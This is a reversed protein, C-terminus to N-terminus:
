RSGRSTHMAWRLELIERALAQEQEFRDPMWGRLSGDPEIPVRAASANGDDDRSVWHLGVQEPDLEGRLVARQVARLLYVSHTELVVMGRSSARRFVEFLALQLQPHLHAEPEEIALLTPGGEQGLWEACILPALLSRLGEGALHLPMREVGPARLEFRPRGEADAGIELGAGLSPQDRLWQSVPNLLETAPKNRLLEPLDTGDPRCVRCRRMNERHRPTARGAVLWQAQRIPGIAEEIRDLIAKPREAIDGSPILSAFDLRGEWDQGLQTGAFMFASQAEGDARGQFRLSLKPNQHEALDFQNVVLGDDDDLKIDMKALDLRPERESSGGKESARDSLRLGITPSRSFQHKLEKFSATLLAPSQLDVPGSGKVLSDALLPLMRLLTSKGTQNEGYLLTLPRLHMRSRDRFAKFGSIEVDLWPMRDSFTDAMPGTVM